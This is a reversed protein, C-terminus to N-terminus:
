ENEDCKPGKIYIHNGDELKLKDHPTMVELYLYCVVMVSSLQIYLNYFRM